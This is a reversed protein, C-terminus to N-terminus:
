KSEGEGECEGCYCAGLEKDNCEEKTLAPEWETMTEMVIGGQLMRDYNGLLLRPLGRGRRCVLSQCIGAGIGMTSFLESYNGACDLRETNLKENSKRRAITLRNGLRLRIFIVV